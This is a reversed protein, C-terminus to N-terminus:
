GMQWLLAHSVDLAPYAQCIARNPSMPSDVDLTPPRTMRTM